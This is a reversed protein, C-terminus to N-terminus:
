ANFQKTQILGNVEYRRHLSLQGTPFQVPISIIQKLSCLSNLLSPPLVFFLGEATKLSPM